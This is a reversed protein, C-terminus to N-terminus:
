EHSTSFGVLANGWIWRTLSLRGGSNVVVGTAPNPTPSVRRAKETAGHAWPVISFRGPNRPSGIAHTSITSRLLFRTLNDNQNDTLKHMTHM